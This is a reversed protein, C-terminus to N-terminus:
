QIVRGVSIATKQYKYDMSHYQNVYLDAQKYAQLTGTTERVLEITPEFPEGYTFQEFTWGSPRVSDYHALMLFRKEHTASYNLHILDSCPVAPNFTSRTVHIRPHNKLLAESPFYAAECVFLAPHNKIVACTQFAYEHFVKGRARDYMVHSVHACLVINTICTFGYLLILELIEIGRAGEYVEYVEDGSAADSKTPGDNTKRKKSVVGEENM